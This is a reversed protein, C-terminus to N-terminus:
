CERATGPDGPGRATGDRARPTGTDGARLEEGHGHAPAPISQLRSPSARTGCPLELVAQVVFGGSSLGHERSVEAEGGFCRSCTDGPGAAQM